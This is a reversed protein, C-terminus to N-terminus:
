PREQFRALWRQALTASSEPTASLESSAAPEIAERAPLKSELGRERSRPVRLDESADPPGMDLEPGREVARPGPRRLRWEETLLAVTLVVVLIWPARRNM